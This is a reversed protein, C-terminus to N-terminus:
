QIFQLSSYMPEIISFAFFGVMLGLVIILIPEIAASLKTTASVVEDEYFDALTKLITSTKGTEEGVKMMEIAGFPFIDKYVSLSESLKEGKKIRELAESVARKFYLNGVTDEAVELSRTLPVGSNLLSSLSRILVACNNKKVLSSVLPIRLFFTDRTWKGQKTKLALWIVFAVAAPVAILLPWQKASFQGFDILLKTYFPVQAGVNVFFESLKPLVVVIIIIVVALMLTLVIAPYIMAGQVQSKLKHEKELQLCLLKLVDELTGSEEGVKVMSLFFDSFIDPYYSLAQSLNEGKNIKEKISLLARKLKKNKAQLSLVEFSSVLSLGTEVMVSLNRTLLIKEVASVRLFLSFNFQKKKKEGGLVATILTLGEDKLIHSLEHTDKAVSNGTITKGSLSKATYFYNPM